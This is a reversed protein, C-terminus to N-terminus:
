EVLRSFREGERAEKLMLNTLPSMALVSKDIIEEDSLGDIGYHVKCRLDMDIIGKSVRVLEGLVVCIASMNETLCAPDSTLHCSENMNASIFNISLGVFISRNSVAFFSGLKKWCVRVKCYFGPSFHKNYHSASVIDVTRILEQLLKNWFTEEQGHLSLRKRDGIISVIDSAVEVTLIDSLSKLNYKVLPFDTM